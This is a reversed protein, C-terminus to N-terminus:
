GSKWSTPSANIGAGAPPPDSRQFQAPAPSQPSQSLLPPLRGKEKWEVHAALDVMRLQEESVRTFPAIKESGCDSDYLIPNKVTAGMEILQGDGRPDNVLQVLEGKEVALILGLEVSETLLEGYHEPWHSALDPKRIPAAHPQVIQCLATCFFAM